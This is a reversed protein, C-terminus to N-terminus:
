LRLIKSFIEGAITTGIVMPEKFDLFAQFM